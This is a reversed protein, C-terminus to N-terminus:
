GFAELLRDKGFFDKSIHANDFAHIHALQLLEKGYAENIEFYLTAKQQQLAAFAFLKEYFILAQNPPTFLALHPEFDLVNAKMNVAEAPEIYPPNSVIIDFDTPLLKYDSLFDLTVFHIEVENLLANEKAVALAKESVDVAWVEWEPKYKKLSIAICASGTGIDILKHKQNPQKKVITDVLLETEPRPILVHENVKFASNYFFSKGIVQQVPKHIRLDKLAYLLQLSESESIRTDPGVILHHKGIGCFHALCIYAITRAEADGYIPTLEKTFQNVISIAKNDPLKLNSFYFYLDYHTSGSPISGEDLCPVV